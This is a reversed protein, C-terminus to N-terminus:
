TLSHKTYFIVKTNISYPLVLPQQYPHWQLAVNPDVNHNAVLFESDLTRNSVWPGSRKYLTMHDLDSIRKPTPTQGESVSQTNDSLWVVIGDHSGNRAISGHIYHVQPEIHHCFIEINAWKWFTLWNIISVPFTIHHSKFSMINKKATRCFENEIAFISWEHIIHLRAIIEGIVGEIMWFKGFIQHM